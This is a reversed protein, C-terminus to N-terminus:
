WHRSVVVKKVQLKMLMSSACMSHASEYSGWWFTITRVGHRPSIWLKGVSPLQELRWTSSIIEGHDPIYMKHLSQDVHSIAMLMWYEDLTQHKLLQFVISLQVILKDVSRLCTGSSYSMFQHKGPSAVLSGDSYCM